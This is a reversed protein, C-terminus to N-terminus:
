EEMRSIIMRGQHVSGMVVREVSKQETLRSARCGLESVCVGM